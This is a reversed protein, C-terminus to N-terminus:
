PNASAAGSAAAEAKSAFEMPGGKSDFIGYTVVEAKEFRYFTNYKEFSLIKELGDRSTATHSPQGLVSIVRDYPTGKTFGQLWPNAHEDTVSFYQVYRMKEAKFRVVYASTDPRDTTGRKYIWVDSDDKAIESPAGKTFRVDARTAGMPIDFFSTQATPRDQYSVYGWVCLGAIVGLLMPGGVAWKVLRKWNWRDKTAAFLGVCSLLVASLFIADGVSM